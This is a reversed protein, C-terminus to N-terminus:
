SIWLSFPFSSTQYIPVATRLYIFAGALALVVATPYLWFYPKVYTYIYGMAIQLFNDETEVQGIGAQENNVQNEFQTM